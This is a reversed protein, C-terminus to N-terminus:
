HEHPNAAKGPTQTVVSAAGPRCLYGVGDCGECRGAPDGGCVSCTVRTYAVPLEVDREVQVGAKKLTSEVLDAFESM